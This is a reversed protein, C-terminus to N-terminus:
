VYEPASNRSLGPVQSYRYTASLRRAIDDMASLRSLDSDKGQRHMGATWGNTGGLILIDAAEMPLARALMEAAILTKLEQATKFAKKMGPAHSVITPFLLSCIGPALGGVNFIAPAVVPV